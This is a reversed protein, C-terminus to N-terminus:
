QRGQAIQHVRERSRGAAEAIERVTLGDRDAMADRATQRFSLEHEDRSQRAEHLRDLVATHTTSHM